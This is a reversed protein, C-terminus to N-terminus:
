IFLAAIWNNKELHGALKLGYKNCIYIIDEFDSSYFGSIILCSKKKLHKVYIPVDNVLVNKNINALIYDYKKNPINSSNGTFAEINTVKNLELNENINELVLDDIDIAAVSKAGKKSCLIGLIGTGSGMDLVTKNVIDQKLILSCMLYTTEHHGTGFSMKPAITIRYKKQPVKKHFPACIVLEEDIEVYNYSSEWKANWNEQKIIKSTYEVFYPSLVKDTKSASFESSKIYACLYSNDETFSEFGEESLQAILIEPLLEPINDTKIAIEVYDM